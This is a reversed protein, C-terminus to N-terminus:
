QSVLKEEYEDSQPRKAQRRERRLRWESAIGLILVAAIPFLSAMALIGFGEVVGNAQGLGLGLAIVLPVTVPGTTVGACDWAVNVYKESSLLTLVLLVGYGFLLVPTLSFDWIIKAVGVAIGVGVGMSVARIISSREMAGNTVNEVTLALARLAPEAFTAGLGLFFAFMIAIGRGLASHYLPSHEIAPHAQFAAPMISGVQNGLAGLGYTLGINFIAMGILCLTMGYLTIKRNSPRLRLAWSLIAFLIICLPIVARFASFIASLSPSIGTSAAELQPPMFAQAEINFGNTHLLIIGLSLVTLVPLLSALTVVGFGSFGNDRNSVHAVGIGLALVLPVTVPGTTVGGCDWALGVLRELQGSPEWYAYATLVSTPVVLSFILPKLSWGRLSRLVGFVTAGGVGVAVAFILWFSYRSLMLHLLPADKSSVSSGALQLVGIAPEAITAAVGITFAVMLVGQIRLKTPLESGIREAFPMLGVKLGEMFLMLGFIVCVLGAAIIVSNEITQRLILAQFIALYLALPLVAQAQERLRVSLYPALIRVAHRPTVGIQSAQARPSIRVVDGYRVKGYNVTAHRLYDGYRVHQQVLDKAEERNSM